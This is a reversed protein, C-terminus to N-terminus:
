QFYSFSLKMFFFPKRLAFQLSQRFPLSRLVTRMTLLSLIVSHCLSVPGNQCHHHQLADCRASTQGDGRGAVATRIVVLHRVLAKLASQLPPPFCSSCLESWTTPYALDGAACGSFAERHTLSPPQLCCRAATAFCCALAPAAAYTQKGSKDGLEAASEERSRADPLTNAATHMKQGQCGRQM